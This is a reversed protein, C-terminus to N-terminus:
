PSNYVVPFQGKWQEWLKEEELLRMMLNATNIRSTNAEPFIAGGDTLAQVRYNTVEAEDTLTGPRPAVWQLYPHSSGVHTRLYEATHMNDTHPPLCVYLTNLIIREKLPYREGLAKNAYAVTSMQVLKIKKEPRIAEIAKVLVHLSHSVLRRPPGYMGKFSLTHGLCSVVADCERLHSHLEEPAMDLITGKIQNLNPYMEGLSALKSTSRVVAKVTHNNELLQKTLLSGTAGTAGAILITM